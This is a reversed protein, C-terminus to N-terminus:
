QKINTQKTNHKRKTETTAKNEKTNQKAQM